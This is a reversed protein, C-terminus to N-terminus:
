LSTGGRGADCRKLMAMDTIFIKIAFDQLAMMAIKKCNYIGHFLWYHQRNNVSVKCNVTYSRLCRM